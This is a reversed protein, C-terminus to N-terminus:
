RQDATLGCCSKETSKAVTVVMEARPDGAAAADIITGINM